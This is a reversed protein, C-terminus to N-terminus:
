AATITAAYAAAGESSLHIQDERFYEPHGASVAKWDALRVNPYRGAAATIETNVQDEWSRQGNLQVTVLVVTPVDRLSGLMADVDSPSATGNTGLHIVVAPPYPAHAQLTGPGESVQRSTVADLAACPPLAGLSISAGLMVSDGICLAGTVPPRTTTTPPQTTPTLEHADAAAPRGDPGVGPVGTGLGSGGDSRNVVTAIGVVLAVVVALALLAARM